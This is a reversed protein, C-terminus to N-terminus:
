EAIQPLLELCCVQFAILFLREIYKNAVGEAYEIM